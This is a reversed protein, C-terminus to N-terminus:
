CTSAGSASGPGAGDTINNRITCNAIVPGSGVMAIGGGHIGNGGGITFGDLRTAPGSNTITVVAKNTTGWIVSLHNTWDRQDRAAETGDFGGYLAVDPKLTLHGSYTGHAVWVEENTTAVALAAAITHKANAWSTGPLADNGNTRVFYVAAHATHFSAASLMLAATLLANTKM